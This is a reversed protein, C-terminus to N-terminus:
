HKEYLKEKGKTKYEWWELWQWEMKQINRQRKQIMRIEKDTEAFFRERM